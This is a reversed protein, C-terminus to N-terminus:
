VNRVSRRRVRLKANEVYRPQGFPQDVSEYTIFETGRSWACSGLVQSDDRESRNLSAMICTYLSLLWGLPVDAKRKGVRLFQWFNFRKYKIKWIERERFKTSNKCVFFNNIVPVRLSRLKKRSVRAIARKGENGRLFWGTFADLAIKPKPFIWM